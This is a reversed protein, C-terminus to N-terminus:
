NWTRLFSVVGVTNVSSLGIGIHPSM